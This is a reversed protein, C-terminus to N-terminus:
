PAARSIARQLHEPETEEESERVMVLEDDSLQGTFVRYLDALLIPIVSGCFILGVGYFLGMSLGSIPATVELNIVTQL